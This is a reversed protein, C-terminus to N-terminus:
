DDENEMDLLQPLLEAAPGRLCAAALSDLETAEPNVCVVRAGAQAAVRALGAAPYVVGSTGIVLMISCSRALIEATELAQLPLNEGFWVVAPRLLNGCSRCAPPEEQNLNEMSCCSREADLWKDAMLDGHLAIVESQGARQHLGDVNQTVVRLRGPHALEFAKLALHGANPEVKAVMERRTMYWRWVRQPHARFAQETALEMPDYKAWVGTHADRFTPVGSEASIGAGTLAVVSRAQSLWRRANALDSM